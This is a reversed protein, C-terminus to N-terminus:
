LVFVGTGKFQVLWYKKWLWSVLTEEDKGEHPLGM